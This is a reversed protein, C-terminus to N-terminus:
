ADEVVAVAAAVGRVGLERHRWDDPTEAAFRGDASVAYVTDGYAVDVVPRELTSEVEWAGDHHAYLHEATGAHARGLAGREAGPDSAVFEFAGDVVALWGNGLRYLADETAALPVGAAAVDVASALGAHRLGGDLARYVGDVTALMDGDMGSVGATEGVARWEGRVYREVTGDPAAALVSEGDVAVATAAGFGTAAFGEGADLLVGDDAAVAVGAPGADVDRAVCREVLEFEGVREAVVSVAVVGTEAAVYVTTEREDGEYVRKEDLGIDDDASM